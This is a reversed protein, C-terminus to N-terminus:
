GDVGVGGVGEGVGSVELMEIGEVQHHDLLGEAVVFDEVVGFQLALEGVGM